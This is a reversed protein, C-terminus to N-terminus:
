RKSAPAKGSKRPRNPLEYLTGDPTLILLDDLGDNHLDASTCPSQASLRLKPPKKAHPAVAGGADYNCLFAGFGRNVLLLGGTDCVVLMDRRTDGNVDLAVAQVNKFGNRYRDYYRALNVGTLREFDAPPGGAADLAYRTIGTQRVALVHPKGTDGWDGFYAAAPAQDATWLTKPPRPRWPKNPSGTNELVGLEGAATLFVADPKGDGNVDAIAAALPTGSPPLLKAGAPAFTTGANIWLTGGLLLDPRADGNVDGVARYAADGARLKWADTADTYGGAGALLLRVGGAVGVLLDPKKDANLDAAMIWRPKTVNLKGLKRLDSRFFAVDMEDLIPNKGGKIQTVLRVLAATRGPFTQKADHRQVVRWVQPTTNPVRKALLWTDALHLVAMSGGRVKGVFLAVPRGAAVQGFLAAPSVIQIRITDGPAQGKLSAVVAVDIVRTAAHTATVNGVLVAKSTGYIRAVPMKVKIVAQAPAATLMLATAALVGAAIRRPNSPM